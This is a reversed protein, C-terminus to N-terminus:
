NEFLYLYRGLFATTLCHGSHTVLYTLSLCMWLPALFCHTIIQFLYCSWFRVFLASHFPWLNWRRSPTLRSARHLGLYTKIYSQCFSPKELDKGAWTNKECKSKKFTKKRKKMLIFQFKVYKLVTKLDFKTLVLLLCLKLRKFFFQRNKPTSPNKTGVRSKM